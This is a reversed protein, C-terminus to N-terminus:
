RAGVLVFGAWYHPHRYAPVNSKLMRLKVARLALSPAEGNRLGGYFGRMLEPTVSDSVPWVSVALRRAGAFLFAGTLGVMGEGRVLTGLGTQCASLTVLDADLRLGMIESLQLVGDEKGTSVLSLVLGSRAPAREDILAHTALHLRRFEDLPESKLVAESAQRGLLLRTGRPSFLNAISRAEAETGPLSRLTLGAARYVDRTVTGDNRGPLSSWAGFDPNGLALLEQRAKGAGSRELEGFVSASPAYSLATREILFRGDPGLLVEFPLYHLIGDAVVVTAASKGIHARIPGILMRDLERAPGRYDEAAAGAPHKSLSARLRRVTALVVPEAPVAASYLGHADAVWVRSSDRGLAYEVITVNKEVALKRIGEADLPEPYKLHHFKPNEVRLDTSWQKLDMEAREVAARTAASDETRHRSVAASLKQELSRQRAAQQPTLGAKLGARSEELLDLLVRARGRECYSLALKEYGADPHKAHLRSATQILEAYVASNRQLLGARLEPGPAASRLSELADVAKQLWELAQEPQNRRQAISALGSRAAQMQGKLEGREAITLCSQFSREAEDLSGTRLLHRGMANRVDAELWADKLSAVSQIASELHQRALEFHGLQSEAEGLLTRTRIQFQPERGTKYVELAPLLDKRALAPQGMELHAAALLNRNRAVEGPDRFKRASALSEQFYRIATPFDGLTLYAWGVDSLEAGAQWEQGTQRFLRVAEEATRIADLANGAQNHAVTLSALVHARSGPYLAASGARLAEEFSSIASEYAGLRMQFVGKKRLFTELGRCEPLTACIAVSRDMHQLADDVRGTQALNEGLGSELRAELGPNNLTRARAILADFGSEDSGDALLRLSALPECFDLEAQPDASQRAYRCSESAHQLAAQTNAPSQRLYASMIAEETRALLLPDGHDLALRLAAEGSKLAKGTDGSDAYFLCLAYQSEARGPDQLVPKALREVADKAAGLWRSSNALMEYCELLSRDSRACVSAEALAEGSHTRSSLVLALGLHAKGGSPDQAARKRFYAEGSAGLGAQLFAAVLLHVTAASEHGSETLMQLLPIAERSRGQGVLQWARFYTPDVVPQASVIALFLLLIIARM